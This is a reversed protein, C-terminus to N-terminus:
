SQEKWLILFTRRNDQPLLEATLDFKFGGIPKKQVLHGLHPVREISSSLLISMYYISSHKKWCPLFSLFLELYQYTIISFIYITEYQNTQSITSKDIFM